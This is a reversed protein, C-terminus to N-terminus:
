DTGVVGESSRMQAQAQVQVQVEALAVEAGRELASPSTQVRLRSFLLQRAQPTKPALEVM